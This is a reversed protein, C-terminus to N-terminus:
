RKNVIVNMSSKPDPTQVIKEICLWDKGLRLTWKNAVGEARLTSGNASVNVPVDSKDAVRYVAPFSSVDAVRDSEAFRFYTFHGDSYVMYPKIREKGGVIRYGFDIKSPDFEVKELYDPNELKTDNAELSKRKEEREKEIAARRKQAELRALLKDDTIIVKMTPNHPSNWTDGRLYFTYVNGSTGIIHLSTDAGALVVSAMGSNPLESDFPNTSPKFDFNNTDGLKFMKITDGDPLIIMTGMFERVRVKITKNATYNTKLTNAFPDSSDFVEQTANLSQLSMAQNTRDTLNLDAFSPSLVKPSPVDTSANGNPASLVSNEILGKTAFAQQSFLLLFFPIFNRM